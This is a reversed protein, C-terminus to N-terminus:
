GRGGRLAKAIQGLIAPMAGLVLVLTWERSTLPTVRLVRVLPAFFAALLQLGMALLVAAVAARNALASHLSLVPSASRANGLHLIQALALTMFAATTGSLAFAAVTVSAILAAYVLISRLMGASLIAQHPDRPPQRM